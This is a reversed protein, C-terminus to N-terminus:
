ATAETLAAQADAVTDYCEAVYNFQAIKLIERVTKQPSCLVMKLHQKQLLEKQERIARLIISSLYEIESLDIIVHLKRGMAIYCQDGLLKEFEKANNHDFRGGPVINRIQETDFGSMRPQSGNVAM